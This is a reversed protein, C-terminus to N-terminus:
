NTVGSRERCRIQRKNRWTPRRSRLSRLICSIVKSLVRIDAPYHLSLYFPTDKQIDAMIRLNM